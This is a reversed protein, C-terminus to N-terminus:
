LLLSDEKTSRHLSELSQLKRQTFLRSVLEDKQDKSWHAHELLLVEMMVQALDFARERASAEIDTITIKFLSELEQTKKLTNQAIVGLKQCRENMDAFFIKLSQDKQIARLMDLALVNTTGEWICLVQADRLFKPIGSDELYGLGGFSEILETTCKLNVKACVLKVIPTLLRLLASTKTDPKVEERGQLLAVYFCLHFLGHFEIELDALTRQHLPQEILPKKFVIRKTAYDKSLTLLRRLAGISTCANYLRTINFMSAITKVGEGKPAIMKTPTGVLLLEATPMAKTGLKDKLRQVEICNLKGQKDYLEIYFLALGKSGPESQGNEEVRALAMAMQSNVASTFWKLGYLRWQGQEFRAITETMSVDSGGPKETMWQGSTWAKSPDRSTLHQFAHNKLEQDGHLEILRAAGDSMAMPCTTYASSPHFLYLKAFQVLRSFEQYQREYGAAVIGEESCIELLKNWAPSTHVLDIREGLATFPQHVPLQAESALALQECENILRKSFRELDQDVKQYDPDSLFRKLYSKLLDDNLYPDCFQPAAQQFIM